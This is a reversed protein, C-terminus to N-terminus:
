KWTRAPQDDGVVLDQHEDDGDSSSNASRCMTSFVRMPVAMRASDKLGVAADSTPMLLSRTMEKVKASPEASAAAPPM